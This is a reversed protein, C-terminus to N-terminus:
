GYLASLIVFMLVGIAAYELVQTPKLNKEEYHHFTGVVLYFVVLASKIWLRIVSDKFFELLFIASLITVVILIYEFGHGLWGKRM